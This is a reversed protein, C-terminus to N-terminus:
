LFTYLSNVALLLHVCHIFNNANGKVRNEGNGTNAIEEYSLGRIRDTFERERSGAFVVHTHSDCFSPFVLRGSCDIVKEPVISSDLSKMKGFDKILEDEILLWANNIVQIESMEKGSVMHRPVDETQVLCSINKILLRM